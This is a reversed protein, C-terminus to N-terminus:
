ELRTDGEEVALARGYVIADVERGPFSRLRGCRPVRGIRCFGLADWIRCSAENTEYVLNFVSYAYGLRAAWAVYSEGLLRGVRRGRAGAAVLPSAAAGPSPPPPSFPQLCGDADVAWDDGLLMVAAFEQFWYAAFADPAMPEVMPYTDGGAIEDNLQRCLFGVLGAPVQRRSTFPM